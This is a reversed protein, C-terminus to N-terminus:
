RGDGAGHESVGVLLVGSVAVCAASAVGVLEIGGTSFLPQSALAGVARGGAVMVAFISLLRERADVALESAFPIAAVITVEFAAIWAIVVATALVLSSGTISFGLYAVGSVALGGLIMRRLGWRDAFVVVLGEGALEAVVVVLTFTGIGAVTLGFSGELWQGYVVFPIEAAAAFLLTAALVRVREANLELRRRLHEHPRDSDIGRLIAVLGALAMFGALVFPARWNTAEILFGSVPVAVLLAVAWTLETIGFIRGREVYPVRDGFWAQMSMDFSPKAFGVVVIGMGAVVISSTLSTMVCGALVAAIAVTMILKRGHRETSRAALPTAFGGLHRVAILASITAPTVDLGRAIAPLFPYVVRLAANAATRAIFTAVLARRVDPTM